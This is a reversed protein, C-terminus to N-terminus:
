YCHILDLQTQVYTQQRAWLNKDEGANVNAREKEEDADDGKQEGKRESQRSSNREERRRMSRCETIAAEDDGHHLVSSFLRFVGKISSQTGGNIHIKKIHHFMQDLERGDVESLFEGFQARGM